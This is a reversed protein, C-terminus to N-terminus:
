KMMALQQTALVLFMYNSSGGGIVYETQQWLYPFKLLEPFDPRILGTGSIVGGPIYSWDSRNLGYGVTASEAGIGSAFSERNLGPHCGLVFNLADYVPSKSFIEPYQSAFFYHKVGFSQIDWGAGWINPRYPIGYPNETVQKQLSENYKVLASRFAKSFAKLKKDKSESCYKEIRTLYWGCFGIYRDISDTLNIINTLYEENKTTLFLEAYVQYKAFAAFGKVNQNDDLVKKAIELCSNSLTDNFGKLTRSTAALCAATSLERSPNKETYVRRDDDNGIINDTMASADGLLVYQRLHTCIIGRYLRGLANYGAVISLAGNEIQQLIDNKGDPQHIEVVHNNFDISTADIEPKFCEYALSLNYCENAQSEIRIDFDGADHWGGINIQKPSNPTLNSFNETQDYGDFLNGLEAVQADDLHCADHWVKYKENVRMHCMQVPLFYEIVPQWVGRDYVDNDIKFTISESNRYVIKYLGPDKVSSFDFTVYNYRLFKGWMKPGQTLVIQEGDANIKILSAQAISNDREDLEIIARKPQNPLYGVQSTQIVPQYIWDEVVNPTIIWKLVEGKQETPIESRLVFWGNNHNMRGDFLQLKESKTEITIKKYKDNPCMVFKNGIAYPEAIINDAILPSYGKGLFKDLNVTSGNKGEFNGKHNIIPQASMTPGNPQQPFIGSKNDMIWPQGFLEGPFLELNFGVKGKYKEPIPSDLFVTVEIGNDIPKTEVNYYFALDPYVMPNFGKMHRSTDPFCMRATIRNGEVKRNVKKPVAQWQGPTPELRIDGNTALRKGHMIICVGGQHGEPYYDDFVAIDVGKNQLCGSQSLTFEQAYSKSCFMIIILSLLTLIKTLNYKM